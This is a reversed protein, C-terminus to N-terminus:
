TDAGAADIEALVRQTRELEAQQRPGELKRTVGLQGLFVKQRREHEAWVPRHRQHHTAQPCRASDCMGILPQDADTSDALILCLARSPDAFWCYNALGIHLINARKRMLGLIETDNMLVNTEDAAHEKVLEDIYEFFTVLETAGRGAPMIGDQFNEFEEVLIEVNRTEELSQVEALFKGQAGGPRRTYGETTTAHLHKLAFKTAMLGHPRYAMEVALTRRLMRLTVAGDPIPDLGLRRGAHGNVWARFQNSWSDFAFRGFIRGARERSPTVAAATRMADWVEKVVVWEDRVGGLKQGKILKGQVRYRFLGPAREEPPLCCDSEFEMLECSRMGAVAAVVIVAAAWVLMSMQLAVDRPSVPDTWPVEGEGDARRILEADRGYPYEIGVQAVAKEFLPRLEEIWPRRFQRFGAERALHSLSLLLLPDEASWGDNLREVVKAVYIQPLPRGSRVYRQLLQQFERIPPRRPYRNGSAPAEDPVQKRLEIIRPAIHETVYLAAALLPRLLEDEVEPTRNATWVDSTGDVTGPHRGKWPLYGEAYSDDPFLGGYFALEIVPRTAARVEGDGSTRVVAGSNRDRVKRAEILYGDCERDGVQALSHVGNRSLWNLWGTLRGFKASCTRISRATRYALPLHAVAPHAPAMLAFSYEKAVLRWVPNEVNRFNFRLESVGWQAPLGVVDAFDWMDDDFCPGPVGAPMLLDAEACVWLGAFISQRVAVTEIEHKM